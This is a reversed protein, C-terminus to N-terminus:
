LFAMAAMWGMVAVVAWGATQGTLPLRYGGTLDMRRAALLMAALAVPLILGNLLGALLLTKM